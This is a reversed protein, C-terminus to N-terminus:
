EEQSQSPIPITHKWVLGSDAVTVLAQARSRSARENTFGIEKTPSKTGEIWYVFVSLTVTYPGFSFKDLAELHCTRSENTVNCLFHRFVAPELRPPPRQLSICVTAIFGAWARKKPLPALCLFLGSVTLCSLPHRQLQLVEGALRPFSQLLFPQFPQRPKFPLTPSFPFNSRKCVSIWRNKNQETRASRSKGTLEAIGKLKMEVRARRGGRSQEQRFLFPGRSKTGGLKSGRASPWALLFAQAFFVELCFPLVMTLDICIHLIGCHRRHLLGCGGFRIGPFWPFLSFVCM